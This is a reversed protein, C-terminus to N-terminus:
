LLLNAVGDLQAHMRHQFLLHLPQLLQAAFRVVPLLCALVEPVIAQRRGNPHHIPTGSMCNAGIIIVACLSARM